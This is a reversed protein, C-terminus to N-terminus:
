PCFLVGQAFLTFMSFLSLTRFFDKFFLSLPLLLLPRGLALSLTKSPIPYEVIGHFFNPYFHFLRQQVMANPTNSQDGYSIITHITSYKEILMYPKKKGTYVQSRALWKQYFTSMNSRRNLFRSFTYFFKGVAELICSKSVQPRRGTHKKVQGHYSFSSSISSYSILYRSFLHPCLYSTQQHFSIRFYDDGPM